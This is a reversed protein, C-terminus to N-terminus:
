WEPWDTHAKLAAVITEESFEKGEIKITKSM